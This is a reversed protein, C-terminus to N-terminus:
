FLGCTGYHCDFCFTFFVFGLVVAPIVLYVLTGKLLSPASALTKKWYVGSMSTRLPPPAKLYGCVRSSTDSHIELELGHGNEQKVILFSLKAVSFWVRWAGAGPKM